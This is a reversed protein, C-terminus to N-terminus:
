PRAAKTRDKLRHIMAGLVKVMGELTDIPSVDGAIVDTLKSAMNELILADRDSISTWWEEPSTQKPM